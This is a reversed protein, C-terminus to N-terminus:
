RLLARARSSVRKAAFNSAWRIPLVWLWSLPRLWSPLHRAKVAESETGSNKRSAVTLSNPHWRFASVPLTTCVFDGIKKLKLFADLDMAYKLDTDFCGISELADLRIMSGPHPILDPGWPLLFQALKGAKSRAIIAGNEDIYDCAGYAVIAQPEDKFLQLLTQLGNPRFLDDDGMWAYFEEGNRARIGTNIAESIGVGPDDVIIAGYKVALKRAEIAREPTVVVLRLSANKRQYDISELTEKLTGLRDGLTPLVM